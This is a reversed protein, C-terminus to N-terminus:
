ALSSTLTSLPVGLIEAVESATRGSGMLQKARQMKQDTMVTNKRPTALTKVKTLDSNNLIKSLKDNTIAGAQVAEWERPEIDIYQKRANTRARADALAKAKIKKLESSEINPNAQQKQKVIANGLVQAHRELPANKLAVNLKADLAQVEKAYARKASPSYPTTKTQVYEKRAANALAKMRNSHDAYVEEMRTGSSLSHADKALAGQTTWEVKPIFKTTTEGTRKNVKVKDYGEGTETYKKEGTTPDIDYRNARKNISVDSTTRSILTSAGATAGGQYKTKLNAIGNDIYSQKYNLTHKEADIVVMSHRVAAAIENPNAGKITMDTVLNSAKGMEMQTQKPTMRKMGEYGPYAARTDFNKLGELAPTSKIKGSNNPIVVVTDGDFDAGSMREAVRANIGVADKATGLIKKAAPQKNNVTLEPIEFTGGHPYRILVVRDGNRFNPAYIETDRMSPIPLIVQTAQDRIAAAKLHVASSDVDDSYSDLLKKKVTPNTLASIEELERKKSDYVKALQQKALTPQQKSLMQSALSKDWDGWDGEEYVVNLAGRQGGPKITSGFPLDVDVKGDPMRQLPKLSDKMDGTNSKNTNFQIDVGAPLDTKYAAMGKIYHTGDVAIRVQAYQAGGLSLDEAGPRLYIMGDAETGGQEAYVVQIRNPNVSLPERVETFTRGMDDSNAAISKINEKDTVIDKYTTGEPALLKYTTKDGTGLQDVQVKVVEYGENRLAVLATDLQTRSVGIHREVGVGVDLYGGQQALQDKLMGTTGHLKDNREQLGPALLSRVSSEGALGMREAIAQNSYGKDKLRQAMAINAARLENDAISKLSIFDATSIDFSKAIQGDTMGEKRLDEIMGMFSRHNQEVNGGSGWPYRGSRRIIGYHVLYDQEDIIM